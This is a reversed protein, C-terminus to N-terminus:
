IVEVCEGRRILQENPKCTKTPANCIKRPEVALNDETTQIDVDSTLGFDESIDEDVFSREEQKNAVRLQEFLDFIM